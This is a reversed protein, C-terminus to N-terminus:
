EILRRVEERLNSLQGSLDVLENDFHCLKEQLIAELARFHQV